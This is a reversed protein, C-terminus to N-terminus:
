ANVVDQHSSEMYLNPTLSLLKKIKCYVKESLLFFRIITFFSTKMFYCSRGLVKSKITVEVKEVAKEAAKKLAKKIDL